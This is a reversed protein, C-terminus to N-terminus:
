LGEGETWQVRVCALRDGKDMADAEERSDWLEDRPGSPPYVNVWFEGKRPETWPEILDYINWGGCCAGNPNFRWADNTSLVYAFVSDGDYKVVVAEGGDRCKWRSGIFYKEKWNTM